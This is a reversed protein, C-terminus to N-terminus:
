PRQTTLQPGELAEEFARRVEPLPDNQGVFRWAADFDPDLWSLRVLTGALAAAERRIQPVKDYPITGDPESPLRYQTESLLYELGIAVDDLLGQMAQAQDSIIMRRIFFLAAPLTGPRRMRIDHGLSESLDAPPPDMVGIAAAELWAFSAIAASHARGEDESALARRLRRAAQLRGEAGMKALFPWATEVPWGWDGAEVLMESIAAVVDMPMESLPLAACAIFDALLRLRPAPQMLEHASSKRLLAIARGEAKWWGLAANLIATVERLDWCVRVFNHGGDSQWPWNTAHHANELPDNEPNRSSFTRRVTGDPMITEGEISAFPRSACRARFIAQVAGQEREPLDIILSDPFGPISPWGGKPVDAWIADVVTQTVTRPLLGRRHMIVIRLLARARTAQGEFLGALLRGSVVAAEAQNSAHGSPLVSRGLLDTAIDSGLLQLSPVPDCGILPIGLVPLILEGRREHPLADLSEILLGRAADWCQGHSAVDPRALFGIARKAADAAEDPTSRCVFCGAMALVAALSRYDDRLRNSAHQELANRASAFLEAADEKNLAAVRHRDFAERILGADGVRLLLSVARRPHDPVLAVAADKLLARALGYTGFGEARAADECLRASLFGTTAAGLEPAPVRAMLQECVSRLTVHLPDIEATPDCRYRALEERRQRYSGLSMAPAGTANATARVLELAWGELSIAEFRGQDHGSHRRLTEVIESALRHGEIVKGIEAMVAARRLAWVLESPNWAKLERQVAKHDPAELELLCAEYAAFDKLGGVLDTRTRLETFADRDRRERRYRLLASAVESWETTVRTWDLETPGSAGPHLVDSALGTVSTTPVVRGVIWELLEAHKVTIPRLARTVRWTLEALWSLAVTAEQERCRELIPVCWWETREWLRERNSRPLVVWGPYALRNVWWAEVESTVRADEVFGGWFVAGSM